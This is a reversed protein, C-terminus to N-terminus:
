LKNMDDKLKYKKALSHKLNDTTLVKKKYKTRQYDRQYKRFHEIKAKVEEPTYGKAKRGAPKRVKSSKMELEEPSVVKKPRGIKKTSPEKNKETM